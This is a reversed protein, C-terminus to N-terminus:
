RVIHRRQFCTSSDARAHKELSRQIQLFRAVTVNIHFVEGFANNIHVPVIQPTIPIYARLKAKIARAHPQTFSRVLDHYEVHMLSLWTNDSPM